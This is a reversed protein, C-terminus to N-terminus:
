LPTQRCLSEAIQGQFRCSTRVKRSCGPSRSSRRRAVNRARLRARANFLISIASSIKVRFDRRRKAIIMMPCIKRSRFKEPCFDAASLATPFLASASSAAFQSFKMRPTAHGSRINRNCHPLRISRMRAGFTKRARKRYVSFVFKAKTCWSPWRASRKRIPTNPDVRHQYYLDVVEVDLRRLSGECAKRVYDPKGSIGRFAPKDPDRLIGFKTAVVVQERHGKLARGLLEENTYPGYMDATDFLTIGLELARHITALSEDAARGGYFDSMGMCGLGLASVVPGGRGLKRQKM